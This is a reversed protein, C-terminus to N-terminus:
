RRKMEANTKVGSTDPQNYESSQKALREETSLPPRYMSNYHAIEEPSLVRGNLRVPFKTRM